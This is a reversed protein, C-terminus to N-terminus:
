WFNRAISTVPSLNSTTAYVDVSMFFILIVLTIFIIFGMYNSTMAYVAVSM